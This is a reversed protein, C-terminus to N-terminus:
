ITAFSAVVAEARSEMPTWAPVLVPERESVFDVSVGLRKRVVEVCVAEVPILITEVSVDIVPIFLDEFDVESLLAEPLAAVERLSVVVWPNALGVGSREVSLEEDNHIYCNSACAVVEGITNAALRPGVSVRM